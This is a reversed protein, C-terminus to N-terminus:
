AGLLGLGAGVKSKKPRCYVKGSFPDAGRPSSGMEFRECGVCFWYTRHLLESTPRVSSSTLSLVVVGKPIGQSFLGASPAGDMQEPLSSKLHSPAKGGSPKKLFSIVNSPWGVRSGPQHSSHLTQGCREVGYAAWVSRFRLWCFLALGLRGPAPTKLRKQPFPNGKSRGQLTTSRDRTLTVGM